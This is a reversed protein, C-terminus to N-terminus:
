SWNSSIKNKRNFILLKHMRIVIVEIGKRLEANNKLISPNKDCTQESPKHM